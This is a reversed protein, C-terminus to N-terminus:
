LEVTPNNYLLHLFTLHAATSLSYNQLYCTFSGIRRSKSVGCLAHSIFEHCHPLSSAGIVWSRITIWFQGLRKDRSIHYTILEFPWVDLNVNQLRNTAFVDHTLLQHGYWVQHCNAKYGITNAISMFYKYSLWIHHRLSATLPPPFPSSPINTGPPM